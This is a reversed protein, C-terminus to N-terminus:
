TGAGDRKRRRKWKDLPLDDDSDSDEVVLIRKKSRKGRPPAVRSSTSDTSTARKPTTRRPSGLHGNATSAVDNPDQSEPRARMRLKIKLPRPHAVSTSSSTSTSLAPSSSSNLEPDEIHGDGTPISMSGVGEENDPEVELEVEGDVSKRRVYFLMYASQQALVDPTVPRVHTDNVEFWTDNDPSWVFAIYHGSGSSGHHVIASYLDYIAPAGRQRRNTYPRMNLGEIPFQVYTDIKSRAARRNTYRFRKLHLCMVEPLEDISLRKTCPQPGRNLVLCHPCDYRESDALQEVETFARLCDDITCPHVMQEVKNQRNVFREPIPLSLDLFPDTKLSSQGCNLCKVENHLTGQFTRTIPTPNIQTALETHIRDLLYRIFEQADQQQYGRFMPVNKWIADLFTGPSVALAEDTWMERLLARTEAWVSIDKNASMRRTIRPPSIQPTTPHSDASNPTRPTRPTSPWIDLYFQQFTVTHCLTQMVVNMFCTNGLNSLGTVHDYKRQPAAARKRGKGRRPPSPDTGQQIQITSEDCELEPPSLVREVARRLTELVNDQGSGHAYDDCAYDFPADRMNLEVLLM